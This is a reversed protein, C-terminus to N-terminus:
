FYYTEPHSIPFQRTSMETKYKKNQKAEKGSETKMFISSVCTNKAIWLLNHFIVETQKAIPQQENKVYYPTESITVTLTTEDSTFYIYDKQTSFLNNPAFSAVWISNFESEDGILAATENIIRTLQMNVKSNQSLMRGDKKFSQYFNLEDLTYQEQKSAPGSLGIRLGGINQVDSLTFQLTIMKDPLVVSVSLTFNSHSCYSLALPKWFTSLLYQVTVKDCSFVTNVFDVNLTFEQEDLMNFMEHEEDLSSIALSRINSAFKANRIATDCAFYSPGVKEIPYQNYYASSFAYAFCLLAMLSFSVLGGIWLEGKGILDMQKFITRLMQRTYKAKPHKICYKLAVMGVMVIVALVGIILAWFIPSVATCHGSQGIGFIYRLLIDDFITNEPSKPFPRIQVVNQLVTLDVDNSAGLSCFTGLNCPTCINGSNGPNKFGKPCLSCPHISTVDKYTGAICPMESSFEIETDEYGGATSSYYGPRSPLIVFVNGNIDLIALASPTSVITILTSAMDSLTQQSNPLIFTPDFSNIFGNNYLYIKSPSVLQYSMSYTNALIASSNGNEMWAVAKGYGIYRGNDALTILTLMTPNSVNVSFLLVTDLSQIGVLVQGDDNIAVSMDYKPSYYKAGNFTQGEQLISDITYSWNSIVSVGTSNYHLLIIMPRFKARLNRDTEILGAIVAFNQHFDVAHPVFTDNPWVLKGELTILNRHIDYILIMQNTFGYATTGQPEVGVVYYEEHFATVVFKIDYDFHDCSFSATLDPNGTYNLMGIFTRNLEDDQNLGITEGVFFFYQQNATQKKGIGVNYIYNSSDNFAIYCLSRSTESTNYPAFQVLFVQYDNQAEVLLVENAALKLGYANYDDIKPDFKV